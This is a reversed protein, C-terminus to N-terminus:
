WRRRREAATNKNDGEGQRGRVHDNGRMVTCGCMVVEGRKDQALNSDTCTKRPLTTINRHICLKVLCQPYQGVEKVTSLFVPEQQNLTTRETPSLTHQVKSIPLPISYINRCSKLGPTSNLPTFSYSLSPLRAAPSTVLRFFTRLSNYVVSTTLTLLSFTDRWARLSPLNGDIAIVDGESFCINHM